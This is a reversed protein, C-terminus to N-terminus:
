GPRVPTVTTPQSNLAPVAQGSTPPLTGAATGPPAPKKSNHYMQTLLDDAINGADMSVHTIRNRFFASFFIAPVAMSVGALTICLAKSIGDAVANVNVGGKTSGMSMFVLIMGFVTGVLGLLPGLTGIVALYSNIQEKGSKISELMESAAKRADELGYQLRSM